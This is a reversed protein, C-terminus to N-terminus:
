GFLSLHALPVSPFPKQLCCFLRATAETGPCKRESRNHCPAGVPEPGCVGLTLQNVETLSLSFRSPPAHETCTPSTSQYRQCNHDYAHTGIGVGLGGPIVGYEHRVVDPHHYRGKQHEDHMQAKGRQLRTQDLGLVRDVDQELVCHDHGDAQQSIGHPAEVQHIGSFEADPVPETKRAPTDARGLARSAQYGIGVASVGVPGIKQELRHERGGAGGNNGSSDCPADLKATKKHEREKEHAKDIGPDAAPLPAAAPQILHAEVIKGSRRQDM